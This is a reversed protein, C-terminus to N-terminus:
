NMYEIHVLIGNKFEVKFDRGNGKPQYLRYTKYVNGWMTYTKLVFPKRNMIRGTSLIKNETQGLFIAKVKIPVKAHQYNYYKYGGVSLLLVTIIILLKRKM